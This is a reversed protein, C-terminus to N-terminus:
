ILKHKWQKKGGNKIIPKRHLQRHCKRCLLMINKTEDYSKHHIELNEKSGCLQCFGQTELLKKRLAFRDKQRILFKRHNESNKIYNKMYDRIYEKSQKTKYKNPHLYYYRRSWERRGEIADDTPTYKKWYKANAIKGKDSLKYKKRQQKNKEPNKLRWEKLKDRQYKRKQEITMERIKMEEGGIGEFTDNSSYPM